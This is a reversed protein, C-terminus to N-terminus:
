RTPEFVLIFFRTGPSAFPGAACMTVTGLQSPAHRPCCRDGPSGPAPPTGADRMRRVDGDPHVHAIHQRYVPGAVPDDNVEEDLRQLGQNNPHSAVATRLQAAVPGAWSKEWDVLHHERADEHLLLWRMTNQDPLRPETGPVQPFMRIFADNCALINWAVDVVYSPATVQQVAKQWAPLVHTGADPDLPHPPEYGLAYVYLAAREREEMRLVQAVHDLFEASPASMEGRELLAYTRESVYLAQGMQAQSLGASRRGRGTLRRLGLETPDGQARKSRLLQQLAEKNNM